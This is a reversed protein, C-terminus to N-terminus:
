SMLGSSQLEDLRAELEDVRERLEENEERLTDREDAVSPKAPLQERRRPRDLERLRV